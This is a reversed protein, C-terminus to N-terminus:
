AAKQLVQPQVFNALIIAAAVPPSVSNGCLKVQTRNSMKSGDAGRQYLYSDPFGQAKFLESPKLMRLGIDVIQWYEGDIKVIFDNDKHVGTSSQAGQLFRRMFAQVLAHHQGQASITHLPSDIPSGVNQGRMKVMFSTVLGAPCGSATITNLPARIDRVGHSFRKAGDHGEGHGMHILCATVLSHHDVSTVTGLPQRLDSGVIGTYHKAMFGAVMAKHKAEGLTTPILFPRESEIVYRMLGKAIRRCTSDALPKNREFISPCPESWDMCDAAAKFPLLSGGVGRGDKANFKAHTAQPWVIPLGDRRAILYFRKRITPAGYDSATLERWEVKYGLARLHGLWVQFTQGKRKQCPLNEANLPGWTQFEEVNELMIIRPQVQSAWRLVVWALGRIKKSVPKGGKAKSFHKCDPSAWLLGVPRGDTALKPDVEFVDCIYHKASPHNAKHVNIADPDHNVAIDMCRGTAIEFGTSAGGGGAFLDVNIENELPSPISHM